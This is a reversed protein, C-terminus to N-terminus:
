LLSSKFAFVRGLTDSVGGHDCNYMFRKAYFFLRGALSNVM